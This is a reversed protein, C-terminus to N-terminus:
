PEFDGANSIHRDLKQKRFKRSTIVQGEAFLITNDWNGHEVHPNKQM